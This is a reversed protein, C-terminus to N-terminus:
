GEWGWETLHKLWIRRTEARAKLIVVLAETVRPDAYDHAAAPGLLDMAEKLAGQAVEALDASRRRYADRLNTEKEARAKARWAPGEEAQVRRHLRANTERAEKLKAELGRVEEEASEAMRKYFEASEGM